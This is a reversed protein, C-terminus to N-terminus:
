RFLRVADLYAHHAEEKTDYSGLSIYKGRLSIRACWRGSRPDLSAGVPEAGRFRAIGLQARRLRVANVSHGTRRAVEPDPMTGLLTVAEATWPIGFTVNPSFEWIALERALQSRRQREEDSYEQELALQLAKATAAHILLQSGENNQRNVDLARRWKAVTRGSVRWWHSIAAASECRVARALEDDVLVGIGSPPDLGRCLPWAIPADSWGTVVVLRDRYLCSARQGRRLRPPRYPKHLLRFKDGPKM